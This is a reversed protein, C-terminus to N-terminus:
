MHMSPVVELSLIFTGHHDIMIIPDISRSEVFTGLRRLLWFTISEILM